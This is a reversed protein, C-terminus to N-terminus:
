EDKFIEELVGVPDSELEPKKCQRHKIIVLSIIVILVSGTATFGIIQMSYDPDHTEEESTLFGELVRVRVSAMDRYNDDYWLDLGFEYVGNSLNDINTTLRPTLWQGKSYTENDKFVTYSGNLGYTSEWVITNGITGEIITIDELPLIFNEATYPNWHYFPNKILTCNEYTASELLFPGCTVHPAKPNFVPNWKNWNEYGIGDVDNFIHKPIIKVFAFDNFHWYSETNFELVVRYPIPTYAAMLNSLTMTLYNGYETSELLYNYTFIIDDATLPVGDSWTANQIIDLTFRTHGDPVVSNDSHTETKCNLALDEIPVQDPGRRFLSSYLNDIINLTEIEFTQFINFTIIDLSLGVIVTGGYTSGITQIKRMTWPGDIHRIFDEQYGTLVDKRYAQYENEEFIVLIPVNYHLIKQMEAAAEYVEEYSTGYLLQERWSDYTNNTFHTPNLESNSVYESWFDYALWQVETDPFTASHVIMDYDGVYDMRIIYETYVLPVAEAAIHLANLAEVGIAAVVRAMNSTAPYYIEIEISEEDPTNRWGTGSDIAYGASDLIANGFDSRDDYYNWEFQNEICWESTNPVVSDHLDANGYIAYSLAREKDYAYAFARRLRAEALPNDEDDRCNISIQTYGNKDYEFIDIDPDANMYINELPDAIIDIEGSQLELIRYDQNPIVQYEIEDIYPGISLDESDQLAAFGPSISSFLFVNLLILNAIAISLRNNM